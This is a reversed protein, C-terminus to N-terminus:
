LEFGVGEASDAPRSDWYNVPDRAVIHERHTSEGALVLAEHKGGTDLRRAIRPRSSHHHRRSGRRFTQTACM